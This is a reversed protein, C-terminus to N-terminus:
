PNTARRDLAVGLDGDDGAVRGFRELDDAVVGGMDHGLRHLLEIGLGLHGEARRGLGAEIVIERAVVGKM